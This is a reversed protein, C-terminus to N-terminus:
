NALLRPDIDCADLEHGPPPTSFFTGSTSADATYFARARPYTNLSQALAGKYLYGGTVPIHLLFQTRNSCYQGRLVATMATSGTAGSLLRQVARSYQALASRISTSTAYTLAIWRQVDDRIGDGDSDIGALTAKGAAGPDPPLPVVAYTVSTKLTQPLTANGLRLHITGDYAGYVTNGSARFTIRISQPQGTAVTSITNPQIQIFPAIQPVPEIVVNQLQQDSTFTFTQTVTTTSTIGAYISGPSWTIKPQTAFPFAARAAILGMLLIGVMSFLLRNPHKM